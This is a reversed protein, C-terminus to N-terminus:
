PFNLIVWCARFTDADKLIYASFPLPLLSPIPSSASELFLFFLFDRLLVPVPPLSFKNVLQFCCPSPAFSTLTKAM